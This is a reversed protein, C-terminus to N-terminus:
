YDLLERASGRTTDTIKKGGLLRAIEEVREDGDIEIVTTFTNDDTSSKEIRYHRVASAAIQPLHTISIIQREKGMSHLKEGVVSATIGSIGSDIEDFIMTPIEDFSGIVSKLALMIRSAEGGSAVRAVPLLPQGKNASLVFEMYDFGDPSFESKEFEARFSADTFNLNHLEKTIRIELDSAAKKRMESLVSSLSQLTSESKELKSNLEAKREDFREINELKSSILDRYAVIGAIPDEFNGAVPDKGYKTILREILDLRSIADNIAQESFDNRDIHERVRDRADCLNYYSESIAEALEKYDSSIDEINRLATLGKSVSDLAAGSGGDLAGSCETLSEFIKESNQMLRVSTKLADYEGPKLEAADIEALEYRLFDLERLSAAEGKLLEDLTKRHGDWETFAASVKEKQPYIYEAQYKDVIGLHNNQDLLSQHEYQGHIDAVKKTAEGLQALTVIDENIRCLSKGAASIERTLLEIGTRKSEETHSEDILVQIVAKEKGARVMTRDARAGLATSIAEIIISKGSGTEGTIVAFGDSLDMEIQEIIAFDKILIHTIM